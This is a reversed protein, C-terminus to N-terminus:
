DLSLLVHFYNRFQLRKFLHSPELTIFCLVSTGREEISESKDLFLRFTPSALSLREKCLVLEHLFSLFAGFLAEKGSGERRRREM